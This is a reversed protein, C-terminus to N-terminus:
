SGATQNDVYASVAAYGPDVTIRSKSPPGDKVWRALLYALAVRHFPLEGNALARHLTGTWDPVDKEVSNGEKDIKTEVKVEPEVVLIQLVDKAWDYHGEHAAVVALLEGVPGKAPRRAILQAQELRAQKQERERRKADRERVQADTPETAGKVRPTWRTIRPFGYAPMELTVIDDALFAAEALEEADFTEARELLKTDIVTVDVVEVGRDELVKLLRMRQEAKELKEAMGEVDIARIKRKEEVFQGVLAEIEVQYQAFRSLQYAEDLGLLEDRVAKHCVKPLKLLALRKSIHSQSKGVLIVIDKIKRGTDQLAQYGLAEDVPDLDARQINEVLQDARVRDISNFEVVMCPVPVKKGEDALMGVAAYRRHGAIIHYKGVEGNNDAYVRLPQLVGSSAISAALEQLAVRSVVTRLNDPDPILDEHGLVIMTPDSM